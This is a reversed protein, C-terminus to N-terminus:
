LPQSFRPALGESFSSVPMALLQMIIPYFYLGGTIQEGGLQSGAPRSSTSHPSAMGAHSVHEWVCRWCPAAHGVRGAVTVRVQILVLCTM